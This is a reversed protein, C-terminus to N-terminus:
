KGLAKIADATLTNTTLSGCPLCITRAHSKSPGDNVVESRFSGTFTREGPQINFADAVPIYQEIGAVQRFICTQTTM